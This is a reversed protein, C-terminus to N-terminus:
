EHLDKSCSSRFAKILHQSTEEEDDDNEDLSQIDQDFEDESELVEYDDQTKNLTGFEKPNDDQVQQNESNKENNSAVEMEKPQRKKISDRKTKSLREQSKNKLHRLVEKGENNNRTQQDQKDKNKQSEGLTCEKEQTESVSHTTLDM